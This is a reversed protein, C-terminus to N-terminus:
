GSTPQLRCDDRGEEMLQPRRAAKAAVVPALLGTVLFIAALGAWGASGHAIVGVTVLLPGAAAQLSSGLHFTALYEVRSRAPALGFSLSWQGASQLMEGWTLLVIGALLVLVAAPTSGVHAAAAFCGCCLALAVSARRMAGAGERVKETGRAVRVQLLVALVTNVVLLGAVVWDPASTRTAIWLPAGVSLLTMHLMLVANIGSAATYWRDRLAPFRPGTAAPPVHAPRSDHPTRLLALLTASLLFSLADGLMIVLFSTRTGVQVALAALLAGGTYGVNYVVRLRAAMGTRHEEGVVQELLAQNLPRAAQESVGLVTAILLFSAFDDVFVYAAFGVASCLHLAMLVVRPSWRDALKGFPVPGLLGLLGAVSLGTGVQATGLGVIKTFFLAAGALYLGTGTADVLGVTLLSAGGPMAAPRHLRFGTM